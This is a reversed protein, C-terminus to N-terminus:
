CDAPFRAYQVSGNPFACRDFDAEMSQFASVAVGIAASAEGGDMSAFAAPHLYNGPINNPKVEHVAAYLLQMFLPFKMGEGQTVDDKRTLAVPSVHHVRSMM